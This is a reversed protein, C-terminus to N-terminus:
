RYDLPVLEFSGAAGCCAAEQHRGGAAEPSGASMSEHPDNLHRQPAGVGEDHERQQQRQEACECDEARGQTRSHGRVDEGVNANRDDGDRVLVRAHSGILHRPADGSLELAEDRREDVVNLVDLRVSVGADRDDLEEKLGFRIDIDRHGLHRGIRLGREFLHRGADLRRQDDLVVGRAHGNDLEGHRAIPQGLRLQEIEAVLDDPRLDRRNGAGRNGVGKASRHALHLDIELGIGQARLTERRGIYLVGDGVLVQDHGRAGLLDTIGLVRDPEIRARELDSVDVVQRDARLVARDGVDAIDGEHVVAMRRLGVDDAHVPPARHQHANLLRAADVSSM